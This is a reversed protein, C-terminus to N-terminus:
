QAKFCNIFVFFYNILGYKSAMVKCLLPSVVPSHRQDKFRQFIETLVTRLRSM